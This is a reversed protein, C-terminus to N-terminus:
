KYTRDNIALLRVSLTVGYLQFFELATSHQFKCGLFRCRQKKLPIYTRLQSQDGSGGWVFNSGWNNAGFCSQSDVTFDIEEFNDSIDSNYGITARSFSRREFLFIGSSFQKQGSTDGAHQPAYQIETKIGKYILLPGVLFAPNYALTVEQKFNNLSDVIVEQKKTGNSLQYNSFITKISSNLQNIIINFEQQITFFSTAGSFVYTTSTDAINLRSVLALMKTTLSEGNSIKLNEYFGHIALGNDIDLKKLLANFQYITVYQEQLLVDSISINGFNSCKLLVGNLGGTSFNCELERDAYDFRDFNKREVEIYNDVASGFYLKDESTHLVACIKKVDWETWTQTLINFRYCVTAYTDNKSSVTWALLARDSEYAVSFSASEIYLNTNILPLLKNEIPPSIFTLATENVKVYGQNSFFYCDNTLRVATDPGIIKITNDFISVDWIPDNGPSGTLRFIGDKKLIFLSERLPIIRSIESDGSGVDVYQLLPVAEPEQYKSYYIRNKIEESTSKLKTTITSGYKFINISIPSPSTVTAVKSLTVAYTSTNISIIYSESPIGVGTIVDGISVSSINGSNFGTIIESDLVTSIGSISSSTSSTVNKNIKYQILPSSGLATVKQIGNISQITNADKIIITDNISLNNNNSTKITVPNGLIISTNPLCKGLEPTFFNVIDLDSTAIYFPTNSYNERQILIKGPSVSTNSLYYAVINDTINYNITKVISKATQEIKLDITSLQIVMAGSYANGLSSSVTLQNAAVATITGLNKDGSIIKNGVTFGTTGNPCTITTANLAWSCGDTSSNPNFGNSLLIKNNALDGGLGTRINTYTIYSTAFPTNYIGNSNYTFTITDSAVSTTSINLDFDFIASPISYFSQRIAATFQAATTAAPAVAGITISPLVITGDEAFTQQAGNILNTNLIELRYKRENNASSVIIYSYRNSGTITSPTPVKLSFKGREGEFLYTSTTTGDTIILNSIGSTINKEGDIIKQLELSAYQKIRTNAYFTHGQFLALDNAVPPQYNSKLIGEGSYQNTYLPVGGIRVEEVVRDIYKVEKSTIESSTPSSEYVLYLEDSPTDSSTIESRYIRYKYDSTITVPIPIAIEVSAATLRASNSVVLRDSPAGFLLNNNKDTYSWIIRYAVYYDSVPKVGEAPLFGSNDYYARGSISLAAPVGADRIATSSQFDSEEKVSLKKVGLNTTFFLNSKIESSKIRYGSKPETYSNPFDTFVGSGTDYSLKDDVHRIIKSKYEILQKARSNSSGFSDGYAKIGRRPEIVGSRNIVTNNAKLLAGPPIEMLTQFQTQLGSVKLNVVQSSM